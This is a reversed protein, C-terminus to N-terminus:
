LNVSSVCELHPAGQLKLLPIRTKFFALRPAARREQLVKQLHSPHDSHEAKGDGANHHVKM